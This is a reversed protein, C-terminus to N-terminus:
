GSYTESLDLLDDVTEVDSDVPVGLCECLGQWSWEIQEISIDSMADVAVGASAARFGTDRSGFLDAFFPDERLSRQLERLIDRKTALDPVSM